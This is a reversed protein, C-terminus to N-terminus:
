SQDDTAWTDSYPKFTIRSVFRAPKPLPRGTLTETDWQDTTIIDDDGMRLFRVLGNLGDSTDLVVLEGPVYSSGKGPATVYVPGYLAKDGKAKCDALIARLDNIWSKDKSRVKKLKRDLDDATFMAINIKNTPKRLDIAEAPCSWWELALGYRSTAKPNDINDFICVQAATLDAKAPLGWPRPPRLNAPAQVPLKQKIDCQLLNLIAYDDLNAIFGRVDSLTINAPRNFPIVNSDDAPLDTM